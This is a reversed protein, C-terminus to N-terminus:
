FVLQRQLSNGFLAALPYFLLYGELGVIGATGQLTKDVHFVACEQVNFRVAACVDIGGALREVLLHQYVVLPHAVVRSRIIESAIDLRKKYNRQTPGQGTIFPSMVCEIGKVSITEGKEVISSYKLKKKLLNLPKAGLMIILDPECINIERELLIKSRVRDFDGDKWSGEKYVKAADTIYCFDLDINWRIFQDRVMRWNKYGFNQNENLGSIYFDYEGQSNIENFLHAFLVISGADRSLSDQSIVM